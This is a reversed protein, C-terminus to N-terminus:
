RDTRRSFWTKRRAGGPSPAQQAPDEDHVSTSTPLAWADAELDDPGAGTGSEETRGLEAGAPEEGSPEPEVASHASSEVASGSRDAPVARQVPSNRRAFRELLASREADADRPGDEAGDSRKEAGDRESREAAEVRARLSGLTSRSWPILPTVLVGLVLATSVVVVGILPLALTSMQPGLHVLRGDGIGGTSLGALLLGAVIVAVPYAVWATIRERRELHAVDRVLRVAGLAVPIAPLIMLLWIAVPFDGPGPLAGLMPLAPLVGTEAGDLSIGTSTGVGVTGGLLVTLAWVAVLPLLALQVLTLVLGGVIGPALGEFLASQAPVSLLLMVVVLAMGLGFLGTVAMLVARAVDGFPAPLLALVRVGPVADTPERRLSWLMGVLGGVVAIMVGSVVASSIMPSTDTSRGIGALVALGIAYVLAYMGLASGADRLAGTRLVGDDRVPRLARGVRRMSLASLLLLLILLGFPTLTVPGDIVGTSVMVGGGHGLVLISLGILIADLATASSATGAVQAALAPVVVVALAIGLSSLAGLVGRVLPTAISDVTSSM